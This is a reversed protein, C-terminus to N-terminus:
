SGTQIDERLRVFEESRVSHKGSIGSLVYTRSEVWFADGTSNKYEIHAQLRQLQNTLSGEPNRAQEATSVRVVLGCRNTTGKATV